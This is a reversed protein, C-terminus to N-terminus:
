DLHPGGFTQHEVAYNAITSNFAQYVILQDVDQQALIYKGQQPINALYTSYPTTKLPM